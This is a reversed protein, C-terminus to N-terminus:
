GKGTKWLAIKRFKGRKRRKNKRANEGEHERNICDKKEKGKKWGEMRNRDRKGRRGYHWRSIDREKGGNIGGQM